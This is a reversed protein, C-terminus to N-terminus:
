SLIRGEIIAKIDAHVGQQKIIRALLRFLHDKVFGIQVVRMSVILGRLFEIILGQKNLLTSYGRLRLCFFFPLIYLCRRFRPM